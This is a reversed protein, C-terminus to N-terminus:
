TPRLDAIPCLFGEDCTPPVSDDTSYVGATLASAPSCRLRPVSQMNTDWTPPPNPSLPQCLLTNPGTLLLDILDTLPWPGAIGRGLHCMVM